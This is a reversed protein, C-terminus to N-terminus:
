QRIRWKVSVPVHDSLGNEYTEYQYTSDSGNIWTQNTFLYDLKRDWFGGDWQTSHTFYEPQNALYELLPVASNYKDYLSQLLDIEDGFYSGEKHYDDSNVDGQHIKDDNCMDEHCFDV